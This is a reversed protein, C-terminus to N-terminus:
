ATYGQRLGYQFLGQYDYKEMVRFELGNDDVIKDDLKIDTYTVLEWWKWTRQGEPKLFIKRSEMPYLVGSFTTSVESESVEFDSVSKTVVKLTRKKQWENLADQVNPFNGM